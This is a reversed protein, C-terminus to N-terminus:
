FGEPGYLQSQTCVTPLTDLCRIELILFNRINRKVRYLTKCYGKGTEFSQLDEIMSLLEEEYPLNGKKSTALVWKSEIISNMSQKPFCDSPLYAKGNCYITHFFYEAILDLGRLLRGHVNTKEFVFPLM